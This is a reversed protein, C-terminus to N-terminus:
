MMAKMLAGVFMMVGVLGGMGDIDLVDTVRLKVAGSKGSSSASGSASSQGTPSPASGTLTTTGSIDVWPM